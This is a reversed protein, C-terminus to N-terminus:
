SNAEIIADKALRDFESGPCRRSICPEYSDQDAIGIPRRPCVLGDIKPLEAVIRRRRAQQIEAFAHCRGGPVFGDEDGFEGHREGGSLLSPGEAFLQHPCIIRQQLRAKTRLRM